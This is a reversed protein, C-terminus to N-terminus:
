HLDEGGGILLLDVDDHERSVLEFADLLLDVPHNHLALSGAYGIVRRGTLGLAARLADLM